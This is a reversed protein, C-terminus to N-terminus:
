RKAAAAAHTGYGPIQKSVWTDIDKRRFRLKGNPKFFPIPYKMRKQSRERTMEYVQGPSMNLIWAVEQITLIEQDPQPKKAEKKM